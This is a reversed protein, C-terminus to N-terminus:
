APLVALVGEVQAARVCDIDEAFAPTPRWRNPLLGAHVTLRLAFVYPQGDQMYFRLFRCINECACWIRLSSACKANKERSLNM